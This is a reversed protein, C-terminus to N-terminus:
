SEKPRPLWLYVVAQLYIDVPPCQICMRLWKKRVVYTFGYECSIEIVETETFTIYFAGCSWM